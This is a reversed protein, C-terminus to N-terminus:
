IKFCILRQANKADKNKERDNFQNSFVSLYSTTKKTINYELSGVNNFVKNCYKLFCNLPNTLNNLTNVCRQMQKSLLFVDYASRLSM